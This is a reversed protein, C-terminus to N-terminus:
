FVIEENLLNEGSICTMDIIRFDNLYLSPSKFHKKKWKYGMDRLNKKFCIINKESNIVLTEWSFQNKTPIM